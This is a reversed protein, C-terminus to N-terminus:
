AAAGAAWGLAAELMTRLAPRVADALDDRFGFPPGEDMYTRQSQELQMAHVGARPRGYHRTIYGGRFRGDLVASYGPAAEAVDMVHRTLSPDCSAGGNTGINLDTM